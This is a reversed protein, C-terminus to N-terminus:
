KCTALLVRALNGNVFIHDTGGVSNMSVGSRNNLSNSPVNLSASYDAVTVLFSLPTAPATTRAASTFSIGLALLPLLAVGNFTM